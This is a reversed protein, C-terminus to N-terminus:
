IIVWGVGTNAFRLQVSTYALDLNLNESLAQIKNGNRNIVNNTTNTNVSVYVTDNEVPAAPLTITTAAGNTLIYHQGAIATVSTGTVINIKPLGAATFSVNANGAAAGSGATVTVTITDSNVFNLKTANLTSGGNQSVAVTNAAANAAAYAANMSNTVAANLQLSTIAGNAIANAKLRGSM